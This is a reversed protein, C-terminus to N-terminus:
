RECRARRPNAAGSSTRMGDRVLVTGDPLVSSWLSIGDAMKVMTVTVRQRDTLREETYTLRDPGTRQASLISYVSTNYRPGNDYTLMVGDPRSLAYIAHANAESPSRTCDAAWVGILRFEQFTQRISQAQASFPPAALLVAILITKRM